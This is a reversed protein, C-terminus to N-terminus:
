KAKSKNNAAKEKIDLERDRQKLEQERLRIADAEKKANINNKAEAGMEHRLAPATLNAELEDDVEKEASLANSIHAAEIKKDAIILDTQNKNDAIEKKLQSEIQVAEANMKAINEQSAQEQQAMNEKMKDEMEEAKLIYTKIKAMNNSDIIELTSSSRVVGKQAFTLALQKADKLKQFEDSSNKAFVGYINENHAEPDINLIAITSDSRVYSGQKGKKWAEKSYDLLGQDDTEMFKEFKRFQERTITSSRFIAQENVGKGDSSNTSGFRQRNMGVANWAEDKIERILNTMEQIYNGLGLDIQRIANIAAAFNPKTEDVWLMSTAEAFYMAKDPEWGAPLIGKPMVMIKDKNRALTLERRFHYINILAQYNLLIAVPSPTMDVRGNYSLKCNSYNNLENRQVPIPKVSKLLVRDELQYAEMALNGWLWEIEIDGAETDLKYDEDVEIEQEQNFEDIYKLIGYKQFCKWNLHFVDILGTELNARTERADGRTDINMPQSIISTTATNDYRMKSELWEVDSEDLIHNLEDLIENAFLKRKRIAWPADEVFGTASTGHYIELPPVVNYKVDNNSIYKYTYTRNTIIWDRFAVQRRDKLNLNYNLYDLAEQGMIARKDVYSTKKQEIHQQINPTEQSEVGTPVGLKNLENVLDQALIGEVEKNLEDQFKKPSDSNVCIVTSIDPREDKEGLYLKIIPSIIDINRMQAPFQRLNEKSSNYPNLVYKYADKDLIGEAARYLQLLWWKDNSYFSAYSTFHAVTNKKFDESERETKSVKQKPLNWM